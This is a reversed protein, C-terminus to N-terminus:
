NLLQNGIIGENLVAWEAKGGASKQLNQALEDPWRGNSDSDTGDGDTLWSGFAVIAAGRSSAEIDVGNLFPWTKIKKEVPFKM